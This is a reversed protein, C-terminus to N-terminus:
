VLLQGHCQLCSRRTPVLSVEPSPSTQAVPMPWADPCAHSSVSAKGQMPKAGAPRASSTSQALLHWACRDAAVGGGELRQRAPPGQLPDGVRRRRCCALGRQAQPRARGGRLASCHRRTHRGQDRTAAAPAPAGLFVPPDLRPPRASIHGQLRRSAGTPPEVGGLLWGATPSIPRASAKLTLSFTVRERRARRETPCPHETICHYALGGPWSTHVCTHPQLRFPPCTVCPHGNSQFM